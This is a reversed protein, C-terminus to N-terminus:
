LNAVGEIGSPVGLASSLEAMEESLRIYESSKTDTLVRQKEYLTHLEGNKLAFSEPTHYQLEFVQGDPAKVFTNVGNYPNDAKLWYNKITTTEYGQSKLATMSSEIMGAYKDAPATYTYRIIDRIDADPNLAVKREYSEVSKLRYDLGEVTAGTDSATSTIRSTIAPEAVVAKNYRTDSPKYVGTNTKKNGAPVEVGAKAKNKADLEKEWADDDEAIAEDQLKRREEISLGLIKESVIPQAICHCNVREGAPLETPDRPYLPYYVGGDAGYLKFVATAPVRQGSMAVHNTRPENRYSGTHRWEKEQVAPNQMYSEQAAVSHATLVETIAVRRARYYENRIGSDLFAQTFEAVSQGNKLGNVLIREVENHSSLKMIRGLEGSWSEAWAVTRKSITEVVLASDIAKIYGTALNPMNTNFEDLFIESLKEDANDTDKVDAWIDSAFAELDVAKEAAKTFRATEEVLAGSVRSELASIEEVTGAPDIFGAESLTSELDGDAKAIYADIANALASCDHTM